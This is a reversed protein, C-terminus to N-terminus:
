AAVWNEILKHKMFYDAQYQTKTYVTVVEESLDDSYNVLIQQKRYHYPFGELTDLTALEEPTVAYVEGQVHYGLEDEELLYPFSAGEGIMAWPKTTKAKGLFLANTLLRNNGYGRKLTGYVFVKSKKDGLQKLPKDVQQTPKCGSRCWGDEKLHYDNSHWVGDDEIGLHKNMITISGNDEFFVLRNIKDDIYPKILPEIDEIFKYDCESITNALTQSDSIEKSGLGYMTGNHFMVGSPVYFPHINNFTKDGKTAYRLHVVITHQKLAAVVGKFTNYNFTKYTKVHSDEYWAVGYGDSNHKQAKDLSKFDVQQGAQKVQM